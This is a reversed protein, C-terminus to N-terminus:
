GIFSRANLLASTRVEYDVRQGVPTTDFAQYSDAVEAALADVNGAVVDHASLVDGTHEILHFLEAAVRLRDSRIL